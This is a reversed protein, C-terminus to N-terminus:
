LLLAQLLLEMKVKLKLDAKRITVRVGQMQRKAPHSHTPFDEAMLLFRM